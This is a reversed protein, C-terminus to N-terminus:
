RLVFTLQAASAQLRIGTVAFGVYRCTSQAMFHIAADEAPHIRAYRM